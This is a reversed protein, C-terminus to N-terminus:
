RLARNRDQAATRRGLLALVFGFRRFLCRWEWLENIAGGREGPPRGELTRCNREAAPKTGM